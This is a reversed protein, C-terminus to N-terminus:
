FPEEEKPETWELIANEWTQLAAPNIEKLSKAGGGHEAAIERLMMEPSWNAEVGLEKLRDLAMRKLGAIQTEDLTDHSMPRAPEPAPEEKKKARPKPAPRRTEKEEIMEEAPTPSYGALVMVWSFALRCVKGTARTIAMSRQQFRPRSNWPRDDAAGATASASSIVVGDSMRILEVTAIFGGGLEADDEICSVERVTCGKMAALTTWGDVKVHRGQGIQVFSGTQKIVDALVKADATAAEVVERGTPAQVAVAQPEVVAVANTGNEESM